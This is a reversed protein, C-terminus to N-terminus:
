VRVVKQGRRYPLAGARPPYCLGTEPDYRHGPPLLAQIEAPTTANNWRAAERFVRRTQVVAVALFLVATGLILLALWQHFGMM